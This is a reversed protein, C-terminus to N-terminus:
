DLLKFLHNVLLTKKTCERIIKVIIAFIGGGEYFRDIQGDGVKLGLQLIKVLFLGKKLGNNLQEGSYLSNLIKQLHLLEISSPLIVFNAFQAYDLFFRFKRSNRSNQSKKRAGWNTFNLFQYQALTTSM